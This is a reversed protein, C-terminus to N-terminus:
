GRFHSNAKLVADLRDRLEAHYEASCRPTGPKAQRAHHHRLQWLLPGLKEHLDALKELDRTLDILIRM